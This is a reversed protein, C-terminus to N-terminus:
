FNRRINQAIQQPLRLPQQPELENKGEEIQKAAELLRTLDIEDAYNDVNRSGEQDDYSLAGLGNGGIALLLNPVTQDKTKLNARRVLLKRGWDDPLSDEFVSFVGTARGARFEGESLPRNVPDLSFAQDDNLFEATYRFAGQINGHSDPDTCVEGACLEKGDPFTIRVDIKIM